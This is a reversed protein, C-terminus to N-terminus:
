KRGSKCNRIRKIRHVRIQKRGIITFFVENDRVRLTVTTGGEEAGGDYLASIEGADPVFRLAPIGKESSIFEVTSYKPASEEPVLVEVYTRRHGSIRQDSAWIRIGAESEFANIRFLM